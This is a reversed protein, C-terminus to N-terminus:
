GIPHLGANNRITTTSPLAYGDNRIKAFKDAMPPSMLTAVGEKKSNKMQPLIVTDRNGNFKSLSKSNKDASLYKNNINDVSKERLKEVSSERNILNNRRNLM